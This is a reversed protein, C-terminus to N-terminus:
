RVDGGLGKNEWSVARSCLGQGQLFNSMESNSIWRARLLILPHTHALYPSIAFHHLLSTNHRLRFSLLKTLQSRFIIIGKVGIRIQLEWSGGTIVGGNDVSHFFYNEHLFVEVSIFPCSTVTGHSMPPVLSLRM